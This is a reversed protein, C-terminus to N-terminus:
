SWGLLSLFFATRQGFHAPSAVSWIRIVAFFTWVGAIAVIRRATAAETATGRRRQERLMSVYIGLALLLCYFLRSHMITWVAAVNGRALPAELELLHHYMNGAFAAAITAAFIRLRPWRKFHRLYTPLFFFDVLLEKFYYYYRNWFEVVSTALLPKYTSRFVHFGFLRLLGIAAHGRSAHTLVQVVLEVYLAFWKAVLPVHEAHVLLRGLHPLPSAEFGRLALRWVLALGLLKLGALQSRALAEATRAEHRGLFDWGKAYPTNTGGYSGGYVPFLYFLHDFLTTERAHGRQGAMLMYGVRWLLFPLVTVTAALVRAWAATPPAIWVVALASWFMAHLAIQPRRRVAPPLSAFHVTARQCGYLFAAVVGLTLAVLLRDHPRGIPPLAVTRRVFRVAVSLAALSLLFRRREPTLWALVRGTRALWWAVVADREHWQSLRRWPTGPVEAAGATALSTV